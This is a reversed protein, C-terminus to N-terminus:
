VCTLVLAPETGATTYRCAGATSAVALGYRVRVRPSPKPTTKQYSRSSVAFASWFALLYWRFGHIKSYGIGGKTGTAAHWVREADSKPM